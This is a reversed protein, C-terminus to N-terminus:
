IIVCTLCVEKKVKQSPLAPTSFNRPSAKGNMGVPTPIRSPKPKSPTNERKLLPFRPRQTKPTPQSLNNGSVSATLRSNAITPASHGPDPLFCYETGRRDLSARAAAIKEPYELRYEEITMINDVRIRSIPARTRHTTPRTRTASRSTKQSEADQLSAPITSQTRFTLRGDCTDAVMTTGPIPGRTRPTSRNVNQSDVLQLDVPGLPQTHPIPPRTGTISRSTNQSHVLQASGPIPPRTRPNPRKINHSDAVWLDVPDLPESRPIPTQPRPISRDISQTYAIQHQLTAPKLPWDAEQPQLEVGRLPWNEEQHQLHTPRCNLALQSATVAKGEKPAQSMATM